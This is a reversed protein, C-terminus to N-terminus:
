SQMVMPDDGIRHFRAADDADVIRDRFLIDRMDGALAQVAVAIGDRAHQIHGGFTQAEDCGVDAAAKAGLVEGIGLM